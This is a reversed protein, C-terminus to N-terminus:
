RQIRSICNISLNCVINIFYPGSSSQKGLATDSKSGGVAGTPEDSGEGDAGLTPAELSTLGM